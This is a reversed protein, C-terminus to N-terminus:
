AINIEFDSLFTLNIATVNDGRVFIVDDDNGGLFVSVSGEFATIQKVTAGPTLGIADIGVEYDRIVDRDRNGDSAEAGFVFVDAGGGGTMTDLSGGRSVFVENEDTGQLLEFGTDKGLIVVPPSPQPPQPPLLVPLGGTLDDPDVDVSFDSARLTAANALRAFAIPLDAGNGDPDVYLTDGWTFLVDEAEDPLFNITLDRDEVGNAVRAFAAGKLVIKDVGPQFDTITDIGHDTTVTPQGQVEFIFRNVGGGGTLTDTGADGDLRDDGPGGRLIDDGDEGFVIHNGGTITASDRGDGAMLIVTGDNIQFMSAADDSQVVRATVDDFAIREVNRLRTYDIGPLAAERVLLATGDQEFDYDGLTGFLRVTDIGDGGDIIDNSGSAFIFDNGGGTNINDQGGQDIFVEANASGLFAGNGDGGHVISLTTGDSFNVSGVGTDFRYAGFQSSLLLTEPDLMRLDLSLPGVLTSGVILTDAVAGGPTNGSQITTAGLDVIFVDADASGILITGSRLSTLTDGGGRGWVVTGAGTGNGALSEAGSDGQVVTLTADEFVIREVNVLRDRGDPGDVVLFDDGDATITYDARTGSYGARDDGAGGDITDDGAGGAITDNDGQGNLMDDGDGGLLLDEGDGGNLTDDGARGKLIDGDGLGNLTDDGDNGILLDNGPSGDLNGSSDGGSVNPLVLEVGDALSDYLNELQILDAGGEGFGYIDLARNELRRELVAEGDASMGTLQGATTQSPFVQIGDVDRSILLLGHRPFVITSSVALTSPEFNNLDEPDFAPNEISLGVVRGTATINSYTFAVDITDHMHGITNRFFDAADKIQRNIKNSGLEDSELRAAVELRISIAMSVAAFATQVQEPTPRYGDTTTAIERAQALVDRFARSADAIIESRTVTDSAGVSALLDRASEARSFAGMLAQQRVGAIQSTILDTLDVQLSDISTQLDDLQQTIQANFNNQADDPGEGGFDGNMGRNVLSDIITYVTGVIGIAGSIVGFAM